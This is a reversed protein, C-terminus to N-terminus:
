EKESSCGLLRGARVDAERRAALRAIAELVEEPPVSPTVGNRNMAEAVTM